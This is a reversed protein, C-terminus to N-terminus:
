FEDRFVPYRLGWGLQLVFFAAACAWVGISVHM